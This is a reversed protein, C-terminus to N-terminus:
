FLEMGTTYDVEPIPGVPLDPGTGATFIHALQARVTALARVQARMEDLDAHMARDGGELTRTAIREKLAGIKLDLLARVDDEAILRTM